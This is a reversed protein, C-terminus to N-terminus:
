AQSEGQMKKTIRQGKKKKEALKDVTMQVSARRERKRTKDSEKIEKKREDTLNQRYKRKREANSLPKVM